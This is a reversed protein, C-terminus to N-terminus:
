YLGAPIATGLCAGLSHRSVPDTRHHIGANGREKLDDIYDLDIQPLAVGEIAAEFAVLRKRISILEIITPWSNVLYQFSNTVQGFASVIQQFLGFTITAAAISPFLIVVAFINDAQIYFSRVVNFYMYHFYLRFYNKRVNVFLEAVTPPRARDANDEGYVLEKRYAAEVRQNKFELGPLRIGAVIMLVTGFISWTIAALVLSYPVVGIIPLEKIYSSLGALIPMFAILTMVSDILSVGLGEVTSAFRMTDEQVRQSAGEIRRLRDWKSVYYDNMANRWRFVYHSVIFRTVVFVAVSVFAFNAFILVSAYLDAVPVTPTGQTKLAEQIMDFMPRRWSNVAVSVDVSFYTSFVIAASGWLSWHRWPHDKALIEWAGCFLAMCLIFFIYFWISATTVFYGLDGPPEVGEALPPLGLAAGISPGVTYWVAM